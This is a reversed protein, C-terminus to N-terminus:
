ITRTNGSCRTRPAHLCIYSHMPATCVYPQVKAMLAFALTYTQHLLFFPCTHMRSFAHYVMEKVYHLASDRENDILARARNLEDKTARNICICVFACALACVYACGGGCVCVSLCGCLCLRVFVPVSTPVSVPVSVSMCVCRRVCPCLCPCLRCLCGCVSASVCIWLVYVRLHACTHACTLVNNGLVCCM